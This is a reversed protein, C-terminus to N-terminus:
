PEIKIVYNEFYFVLIHVSEPDAGGVMGIFFGHTCVQSSFLCAKSYQLDESHRSVTATNQSAM